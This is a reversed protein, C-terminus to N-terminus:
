ASFPALLLRPLWSPQLLVALALLVLALGAARGVERGRRGLKEYVMLATLAGM